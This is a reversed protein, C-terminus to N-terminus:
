TGVERGKGEVEEVERGKGEVEESGGGLGALLVFLLTASDRRRLAVGLFGCGLAAAALLASGIMGGERKVHM